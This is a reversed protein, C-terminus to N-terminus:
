ALSLVEYDTCKNYCARCVPHYLEIGGIENVKKSTKDLKMTFYASSSCQLCVSSLKQVTEAKAVLDCVQGFPQNFYQYKVNSPQM